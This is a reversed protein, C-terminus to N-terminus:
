AEGAKEEAKLGERGTKGADKGGDEGAGAAGDDGPEEEPETQSKGLGGLGVSDLTMQALKMVEPRLVSEKYWTENKLGTLFGVNFVLQLVCAAVLVIVAGRVAGFVMGLLRDTGTLGTKQLVLTIIYNVLGIAMLTGAFLVFLAITIRVLTDETFTFLAAVPQYFKVAVFFAAAWAVLSLIEKVFGRAVSILASLLVIGIITYDIWQM